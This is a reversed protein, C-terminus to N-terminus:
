TKLRFYEEGCSGSGHLVTLLGGVPQNVESGHATEVRQWLLEPEINRQEAADEGLSYVQPIM